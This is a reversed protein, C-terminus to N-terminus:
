RHRSILDLNTSPAAKPTVFLAMDSDVAPVGPVAECAIGDAVEGVLAWIVLIARGGVDM